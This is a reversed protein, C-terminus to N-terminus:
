SRRWMERACSSRSGTYSDHRINMRRLTQEIGGLAYKVASQIKAAIEKDRSRLPRHVSDAEDRIAPETEMLKNAAIYVKAVPMTQKAATLRSTTAASWWWLRRAAWITLIISPTWAADRRRLIRVLSDGIVSNRIHGVHLAMPIPSTHEVIVKM